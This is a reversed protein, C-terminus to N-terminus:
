RTVRYLRFRERHRAHYYLSRGDPSLTPGEAFSEIADVRRPAAFAAGPQRRAARWITAAYFPFIGTLRTFFIECGDRSLAPAYNRGDRNLAELTAGDARVFDDGRRHALGLRASKPVPGGAFAGDAFVLTKGDEALEVDFILQGMRASRLGPVAQAGRLAGGVFRGCHVTALTSRYSRTSVFCFLGSADMTPVGDLAASNAGDVPGRYVFTLPDVKTAWHIDTREAPENRNNFFLIQGDRSLFPEMAEGEYGRIVVPEPNRFEGPPPARCTEVAALAAGHSALSFAVAAALPKRKM